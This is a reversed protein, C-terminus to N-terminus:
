KQFNNNSTKTGADPSTMDTNDLMKENKRAKRLPMWCGRLIMLAGIILMVVGILLAKSMGMMTPSMGITMLLGSGIMVFGFVAMSVGLARMNKMGFASIALFGTFLILGGLLVLSIIWIVDLTNYAYTM